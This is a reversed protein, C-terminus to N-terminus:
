QDAEAGLEVPPEVSPTPVAVSPVGGVRDSAALQGCAGDIDQGRTDRVTTPVGAARLRAVFERQSAATRQRLGTTLVLEGGSLFPRPDALETVAVWRVPRGLAASEGDVLGIGLAPDALVDSLRLPM